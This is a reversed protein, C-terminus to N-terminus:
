MSALVHAPADASQDSDLGIAPKNTARAAEPVDQGTGCSVHYIINVGQQYQSLALEKGKTPNRFADPTVGAYQAIVTCDPFVAKVGARFGAEFKYILPIEM